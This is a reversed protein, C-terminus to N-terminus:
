ASARSTAPMTGRTGPCSTSWNPSGAPGGRRRRRAGLRPRLEGVWYGDERLQKGCVEIRARFTRAASRAAEADAYQLAMTFISPRHDDIIFSRSRVQTARLERLGVARTCVTISDQRRGVGPGAISIKQAGYAPVRGVKILQADTLHRDTTLDRGLRRAVKPLSRIMPYLALEESPAASWNYDQGTTKMIVLALRRGSRTLGFEEFALEEAGPANLISHDVVTYAARDGASVATWPDVSAHEYGLRHLAAPCNRVWRKLSAYGARTAAATRFELVVAVARQTSDPGLRYDRRYQTPAGLRELNRYTFCDRSRPWDSRRRPGPSRGTGPKTFNLIM